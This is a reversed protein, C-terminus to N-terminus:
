CMGKVICDVRSWVARRSSARVRRCRVSVWVGRKTCELEGRLTEMGEVDGIAEACSRELVVTDDCELAWVCGARRDRYGVEAM